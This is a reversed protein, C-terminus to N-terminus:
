DLWKSLDKDVFQGLLRIDDEYYNKMKRKVRQSLEPRQREKVNWRNIKGLLRPLRHSPIQLYRKLIKKVDPSYGALASIVNQLMESKPKKSKNSADFIKRGNYELGLFHLINIYVSKPDAALESLEAIFVRDREVYSLLEKVQKGVSCISKYDLLKPSFNVNIGIERKDREGSLEWAKEFSKIKEEGNAIRENHYSYAMKVPNRVLVIYKCEKYRSEIKPIASNSYLYLPSAEGLKTNKERAKRFLREYDDIGIIKNGVLDDCFFNTEKRKPMYVKEHSRLWRYISTTGCKPAGIIFFNPKNYTMKVCNHRKSSEQM